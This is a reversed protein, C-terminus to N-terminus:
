SLTLNGMKRVYGSNATNDRKRSLGWKGIKLIIWLESCFEIKYSVFYIM